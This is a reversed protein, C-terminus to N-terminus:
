RPTEKVPERDDGEEEPPDRRLWATLEVTDGARDVTFAARDGWRKAAMLRNYTRRDPLSRGDMAVVVDGPQFGAAAAVSDEPVFLVRRRPDDDSVASTSLGLAPYLPEGAPPLGWVFDAYSARVTEVREGDEDEV